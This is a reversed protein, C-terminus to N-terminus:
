ATVLKRAYSAVTCTDQTVEVPQGATVTFGDASITIRAPGRMTVFRGIRYHCLRLESNNLLDFRTRDSIADLADVLVPYDRAEAATLPNSVPRGIVERM